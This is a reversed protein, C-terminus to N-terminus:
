WIMIYTAKFHEDYSGVKINCNPHKRLEKLYTKHFSRFDAFEQKTSCIECKLLRKKVM